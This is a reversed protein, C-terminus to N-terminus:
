SKRREILGAVDKALCLGAYGTDRNGNWTMGGVPHVAGNWVLYRYGYENAKASATTFTGFYIAAPHETDFVQSAKINLANLRRLTHYDEHEEVWAVAQKETVAGSSDKCGPEACRGVYLIVQEVPRSTATM